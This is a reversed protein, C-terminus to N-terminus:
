WVPVPTITEPSAFFFADHLISDDDHYQGFINPLVFHKTPRDHHSLRAAWWSFTSPACIGGLGCARMDQLAVLHDTATSISIDAFHMRLLSTYAILKPHDHRDDTFIVIAASNPIRQAIVAIARSYYVTLDFSWCTTGLYDGLRVHVFACNPIPPSYPLRITRALDRIVDTIHDAHQFFGKLQIITRPPLSCLRQDDFLAHYKQRDSTFERHTFTREAPRDAREFASFVTDLEPHRQSKQQAAAWLSRYLVVKGGIRKAVAMAAAIQFLKNGLGGRGSVTVIQRTDPQEM